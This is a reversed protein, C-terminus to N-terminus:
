GKYAIVADAPRTVVAVYGLWFVAAVVFVFATAPGGGDPSLVLWALVSLLVGNGMRAGAGIALQEDRPGDTRWLTLLRSAIAVVFAQLVLWFVLPPVLFVVLLADGLALAALSIACTATKGFRLLLTPKGYAADGRRDRFDKLVIRSVFLFFLAACLLADGATPSVGAAALGLGYPVVVYAAALAVPALATRYALRIPALSYAWGIALSTAALGAAAVGVLSAAAIALAASVIHLAGLDRARAEGTVLPRGRDRPHNLADIERDAIDNVSTAAVYSSALSVAAWVYDWDFRELGVRYAPGLLMFTWVMAAVRYRLMRIYLAPLATV